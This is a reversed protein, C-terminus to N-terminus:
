RSCSLVTDIELESFRVEDGGCMDCLRGLLGQILAVSVIPGIPTVRFQTLENSLLDSLFIASSITPLFLDQHRRSALSGQMNGDHSQGIRFIFDNDKEGM